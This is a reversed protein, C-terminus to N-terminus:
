DGGGGFLRPRPHTANQLDRPKATFEARTWTPMFGANFHASFEDDVFTTM